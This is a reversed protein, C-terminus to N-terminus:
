ELKKAWKNAIFLFSYNLPHSLLSDFLIVRGETAWLFVAALENLEEDPGGSEEIRVEIPPSVPATVHLSVRDTKLKWNPVFDGVLSALLSCYNCGPQGSDIIDRLKIYYDEFVPGSMWVDGYGMIM